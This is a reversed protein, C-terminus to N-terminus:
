EVRKAIGFRSAIHTAQGTLGPRWFPLDRWQGGGLDVFYVDGYGHTAPLTLNEDVYTVTLQGQDEVVEITGMEFADHYTGAFDSPAGFSLSVTLEPHVLDDVLGDVLDGIHHWDANVLAAVGLGRSPVAVWDAVYGHAAGGHSVVEPDTHEVFLGYGYSTAPIETQTSPTRLLALAENSLPGGQRSHVNMWGMLDVVSGWAGGMPGYNGFHLYSGDPEVVEVLSGGGSHGPAHDGAKVVAVDFTAQMGAPAFIRSEVLEAFPIGAAVELVYGAVSFGTNSYVHLTGPVEWLPVQANALVTPGLETSGFGEWQTPYAATHSLLHHLTMEPYALAPVTQTVPAHLDIAGDEALVVAAAATFMKTSSAWQFRTDPTISPGGVRTVGIPAVHRIEGGCYLGLAAGPVGNSSLRQEVSAVFAAWLADAEPPCDFTPAEGGAGTGGAGAGGSGGTGGTGGGADDEGPASGSSRCGLALVLLSGALVRSIMVVLIRGFRTRRLFLPEGGGDRPRDADSQDEVPGHAREVQTAGHGCRQGLFPTSLRPLRQARDDSRAGLPSPSPDQAPSRVSRAAALHAATGLLVGLPQAREQAGHAERRHPHLGLGRRSVGANWIALADAGPTSTVWASAAETKWQDFPPEGENLGQVYRAMAELFEVDRAVTKDVRPTNAEVSAIMSENVLLYQRFPVPSQSTPGSEDEDGHWQEYIAAVTSPNRLVADRDVSRGDVRVFRWGDPLKSDLIAIVADM